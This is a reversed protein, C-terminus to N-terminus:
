WFTNRALIIACYGQGSSAHATLNYLNLKRKYFFNSTGAKPLTIVNELDFCVVMKKSQKDAKREERMADKQAIHRDYKVSIESGIVERNLKLVKFEECLDCRDSKPMHFDLNFETVFMYRYYSEKVPLEDAELSELYLQYMKSIISLNAELYQRKSSSRTYHSEVTPFSEIHNRVKIKQQNSIVKKTHKGRKDPSPVGTVPDKKNNHFNYIPKQSIALTGLYYDKCVRHRDNGIELYYQFTYRRRSDKGEGKTVTCRTKEFRETTKGYFQYKETQQLKYYHKFISERESESIKRECFFRCKTLCSKSNCNSKNKSKRVTKAPVLKGRRSLYEKGAQCLSKRKNAKWETPNRKRKRVSKKNSSEAVTVTVTTAAVTVTTTKDNSSTINGETTDM